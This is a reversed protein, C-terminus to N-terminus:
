VRVRERHRIAKYREFVKRNDELGLVSALTCGRFTHALMALGRRAVFWPDHCFAAPMHRLKMWREAKWRLYEIDKAPLHETRVV